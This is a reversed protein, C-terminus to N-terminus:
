DYCKIIKGNERKLTYEEKIRVKQGEELIYKANCNICCDLEQNEEKAIKCEKENEYYICDKEDFM